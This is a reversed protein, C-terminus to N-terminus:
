FLFCFIIAPALNPSYPPHRLLEYKLDHITSSVLHSTHVPANDHHLIVGASILGRRQKKIEPHLENSLINAYYAKTITTGPPVPTKFIIGKHDWFFSYLKAL